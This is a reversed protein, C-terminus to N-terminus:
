VTIGLFTFFIFFLEWYLWFQSGSFNAGLWSFVADDLLYYLAAVIEYSSTTWSLLSTASPCFTPVESLKLIDWIETKFSLKWYKFCWKRLSSFNLKSFYHFNLKSFEIEFLTSLSNQFTDFICSKSLISLHFKSIRKFISLSKEVTGFCM